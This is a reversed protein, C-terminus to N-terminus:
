KATDKDALPVEQIVMKGKEDVEVVAVPENNEKKKALKENYSKQVNFVKNQRRSHWFMAIAVILLVISSAILIEYTM